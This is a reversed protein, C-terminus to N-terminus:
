VPVSRPKGGVTANARGRRGPAAAPPKEGTSAAPTSTRLSSTFATSDSSTLQLGWISGAATLVAERQSRNLTASSVIFFVVSNMVERDDDASIAGTQVAVDIPLALWQGDPQAAIVNTTRRIEAFLANKAGPEAAGGAGVQDEWIGLGIATTRLVRAAHGPGAAFNLHTMVASYTKGLLMFWRDVVEESLPVSHVYAVVPSGDQDDEHIPVVLNLRKNIRM